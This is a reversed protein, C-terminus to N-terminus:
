VHAYLRNPTAHDVVASYIGPRLNGEIITVHNGRTHGQAFGEEEASGKILVEVQRGVWEQNKCLSVQKSLAILRALRETKIRREMDEFHVAAPTEERESYIFMYAFDYGVEQYLSLTQQFDEESEGPFGVIVDTSITADPLEQRIKRIRDLYYARTYERAMRKLVRDSGSQVPLHIYRCVSPTDAIAEIIEDDFNIPHSTVFRVRPIGIHGVMRLLEAFSPYGPLPNRRSGTGPAMGYSNVNQGLLSVEVIGAEKFSRAEAIIDSAPRSVEPGRTDPVICYTCRHNCGRMITLNATIADNPAPPSFFRLENKFEFSQYKGKQIAPVIETIAGPGLMIDVGFKKGLRRGEPLQALCGILGITFNKRKQKEKRLEGLLTQAKEVPKGRVACTNVLVLDADHFDDVFSYGIGALESQISHTDYENM